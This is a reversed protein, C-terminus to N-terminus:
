GPPPGAGADALFPEFWVFLIVFETRAARQLTNGGGVPPRDGSSGKDGDIKPNGIGKGGPPYGGFTAFGGSFSDAIVTGMPPRWTARAQSAAKEKEDVPAKDAEKDKDKDRPGPPPADPGRGVGGTTGAAAMNLLEAASSKGILSFMGLAPNKDTYYEYMVVFGVRPKAPQGEEKSKERLAKETEPHLKVGKLKRKGPENAALDSLNAALTDRVFREKDDHYTYGRVEIIWGAKPLSEKKTTVLEYEDKTLGPKKACPTFYDNILNESYLASVGEIHIQVLAKKIDEEDQMMKPSPVTSQNTKAREALLSQLKDWAERGSMKSKKDDRVKSVYYNHYPHNGSPAADLVLCGDHREEGRFGRLDDKTAPGAYPLASNVFSNLYLWNLRENIGGAMNLIKKANEEAAAEASKYEQNRQDSNKVIDEMVKIQKEVNPNAWARKAAAYGLLLPPSLLLLVAAATLAWPKKARIFREKAIEPPLLNTHVRTAKLGQLALGHAVAFSLVNEKFQPADTVTEEGGLREIKQLKRVELQLKEQLYKQLGPLRFANGLGVMYQINADRHTNTFYGLSRQVESVFDNLVPKLAALIKKLDPSKVANRKLHEAKAFTLKLDKTLARTFHNGGLPIPRQWIIKEGDTIVLNSNDAGIDLAVVCDKGGGGGEEGDANEVAAGKNLKDHALFNCLALPAMQITHVEVNVDKFHQLYRNVMDRKMAFLGVEADLIMNDIVMGSGLRQFAWVVEELPFPIQQKAEFKVIDPVKKSDVPPLKVFRALGSQGPVSVSVTDGKLDNRSLFKELAERTLQDPDADPQSLIKPHEIYDFATAKINGTEDAELRIAKLACQGLDIGWVGPNKLPPAM